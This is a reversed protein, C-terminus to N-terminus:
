NEKLCTNDILNNQKNCVWSPTFVDAKDRIGKQQDHKSKEVRPKIINGTRSTILNISIAQDPEYKPGYKKYNDTCWMINRDTTRDKLLHTLIEKDLQLLQNEKIDVSKKEEEM